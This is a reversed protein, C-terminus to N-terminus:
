EYKIKKVKFPKLAYDNKKVTFTAAYKEIEEDFEESKLNIRIISDRNTLYEEEGFSDIVAILELKKAGNEEVEIIKSKGVAIDKVDNWYSVGYSSDVSTDALYTACEKTEKVPAYGAAATQENLEYFENFAEALNKGGDIKKKWDELETKAKKLEDDSLDTVDKEFMIAVRYNEAYYKKIEEEPVAKSGDKGYVFTFYKNALYSYEMIKVLTEEGIGNLSYPIGYYYEANAYENIGDERAAKKEEDTLTINNEKCLTGIAAYRSLEKAARTEVWEAYPLDEIKQAFYDVDGHDHETAKQEDTEGEHLQEEVINKAEMDANLLAYSYMAATFEVGNISVGIENEKHCATLSFIMLACLVLAVLSKITKM